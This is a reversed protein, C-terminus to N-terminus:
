SWVDAQYRRQRELDKMLKQAGNEDLEGVERFMRLFTNQVDRAMNRADGCVYINAGKQILDWTNHRNDWLKNQVYVKESQQRSFAVHLELGIEKEYDKLEDEYIFDHDPHRCGFYLVMPGLEKGQKKHFLREQLFGRFPALGTGPGIMIVPTTLRHPLRVTSKRIFIPCTDGVNKDCLYNTCVGKIQRGSINYRLVLATVAVRSNDIKSSSSISYYRAQLRPLMELLLDLPPKCTTFHSLVDVINRREKQIFASYEKLGEESATSLLNLKSKEDENETFEALAKLVHSKVPACIDVYHTLATRYSSPCPFPHRKSSEEDLNILKFITELNVSLLQGIKEVLASDNVPFVGVHDGAEYRIRTGDVSFEVHRCCRDSASKHLDRNEVVTSLYPNKQDFPPRQREYAGVRGYEGTFVNPADEVIELRYQRDLHGDNNLEWCFTQALTPLFAERWRMFDEELNADDDGLGLEFVREAGLEELRKDMLKGVENFHEYTKNGLGFVAYRLGSLDCENNSLFEFLAQANDTPDGEGYTAVCLLLLPNEIETIKPLDEVDIEEPDMLLAKKGYKTLDKALRGALEEATGTQSGYLILIQRAESKMRGLFSRDAKPATSFSTSTQLSSTSKQSLDSRQKVFIYGGVAMIGVIVVLDLTDFYDYLFSMSTTFMALACDLLPNWGIYMKVLEAEDTAMEILKAVQGEVSMAVSNHKPPHFKATVINGSLRLRILELTDMAAQNEIQVQKSGLQKAQQNRSETWELLPDHVFSQLVTTLMLEENRMVRMSAECCRRFSGQVGTSGLGDVMNRTLRFPVVEPVKLLEGKDFLLNFDVHVADGTMTDLLINEAHRDGLGLVFGVMSMTAATQTFNSRSKYWKWPDLYTRRFWESMVLPHRPYCLERMNKLREDKKLKDNLANQIEQYSMPKVKEKMLPTLASAFTQLNPLWEIIGGQEQLPIVGYSRITLLRRRAEIDRMFLGNLLKEVDVFRADKRLEDVPKCMLPYSKGDSGIFAIKKPQANSKLVLYSEEISVIYIERFDYVEKEPTPADSVRIQSLCTSEDDKIHARIDEVFPLVLKPPSRGVTCDSASRRTLKGLNQMSGDRLFNVLWPFATSFQNTSSSRGDEAVKMLAAAFYSYHEILQNLNVTTAKRKALDYVEECRKARLAYNANRSRSIAISRWLCQHPYTVLLDALITKLLNFIAEDKHTIRSILQSFCTYFYYRNLSKFAIKMEQNSKNTITERSGNQNGCKQSLDMWVTLLRPMVAHLYKPGMELVSRYLRVLYCCLDETIEKISGCYTDFFVAYHYFFVESKEGYKDLTQYVRLLDDMRSSQAKQKFETLLLQAEVFPKREKFSLFPQKDM